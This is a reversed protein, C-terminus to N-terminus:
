GHLKKRVHNWKWVCPLKGKDTYKVATTLFNIMIQRIRVEDGYLKCPINEQNCYLLQLGKDNARALMMQYTANMLDVTQYEVPVIEMKGSDIKSFDLIDNILSLLSKGASQINFAYEKIQPDKEERIIMENMGLVANIPTRIEHSMNALFSAKADNARLAENKETNVDIIQKIMDVFAIVLCFFLGVEFILGNYWSNKMVVFVVLQVVGTGVFGGVGILSLKYEKVREEKADKVISLIVMIITLGVVIDTAIMMDDLSFVNSVYLVLQVFFNGISGVIGALLIKQHRSNQLDNIYMVVAIPLTAVFVYALDRATSINPLVFQRASSNVVIWASALVIGWSIYRMSNKKKLILQVITSAIASFLGFFMLFAAGVIEPLKELAIMQILEHRDGIYVEELELDEEECDFVISLEKGEMDSSLPIFNYAYPSTKGFLRSEETDYIKYEEGDVLIQLNAGKNWFRMWMNDLSHESKLETSLTILQHSKSKAKTPLTVERSGADDELIWTGQYM